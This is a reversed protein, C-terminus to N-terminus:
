ANQPRRRLFLVSCLGITLLVVTSPEPVANFIIDGNVLNLTSDTQFAGVLGTFSLGATILGGGGTTLGTFQNDATGDFLVYTQGNVLAGVLTLNIVNSNFVFDGAAGNLLTIGDGTVSTANLDFAFTAGSAFTAVAGAPTGDFTLNGIAGASAGPAISSGSLVTTAGSIIGSGGLTADSAALTFTQNNTSSTANQSLIVSTGSRIQEVYTNAAIGTGTITQGVVMGATSTINVLRSGNTTGAAAAGTLTGAASGVTVAGTGTGSGTTNNVLLTGGVVNVPGDFTNGAARSLIATGDLMKDLGVTQAGDSILGSFTVTGGTVAQLAIKSNILGLNSGQTNSLDVNGAFTSADASNGGITIASYTNRGISIPNNVTVAADTLLSGTDGPNSNSNGFTFGQTGNAGLAGGSGATGTSNVGILVKGAGSTTGQYTNVANVRTTLNFITTAGQGLRLSTTAAGAADGIVGNLNVRANTAGGGFIVDLNHNGATTNIVNVAGGLTTTSGTARTQVLRNSTNGALNSPIFDIDSNITTTAATGANIRIIDRDVAGGTMNVTIKGGTLTYGSVDFNLATNNGTQLVGTTIGGAQVTVTGATGGFSASNGSNGTGGTWITNASGSTATNWLTSTTDWAGTGGIGAGGDADWHLVTTQAQLSASGLLAIAVLMSIALLNHKQM